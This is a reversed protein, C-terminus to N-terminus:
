EHRKKEMDVPDSYMQSRSGTYRTEYRKMSSCVRSCYGQAARGRTSRVIVEKGCTICKNKPANSLFQPM